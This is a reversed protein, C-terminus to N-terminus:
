VVRGEMRWGSGGRNRGGIENKNASCCSAAFSESAAESGVAMVLGGWQRHSKVEKSSSSHTEVVVVMYRKNKESM